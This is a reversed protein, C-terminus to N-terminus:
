AKRRRAHISRWRRRLARPLNPRFSNSRLDMRCVCGTAGKRCKVSASRKGGADLSGGGEDDFSPHRRGERSGDSRRDGGVRHSESRARRVTAWVDSQHHRHDRRDRCQDAVQGVHHRPHQRQGQVDEHGLGNQLSLVLTDPGVLDLAGRMASDTHFSKVLVIALDVPGVEAPNTTARVKVRCSGTADDVLLGDCRMAEVHAAFRDVLWTQHGGETLASGIACGLAGAGLFAIKM